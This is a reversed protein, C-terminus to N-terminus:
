PIKENKIILDQVKEDFLTQIKEINSDDNNLEFINAQEQNIVINFPALLFYSNKCMKLLHLEM